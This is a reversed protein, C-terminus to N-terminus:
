GIRQSGIILLHLKIEFLFCQEQLYFVYLTVDNFLVHTAVLPIIVLFNQINKSFDFVNKPRFIHGLFIHPM